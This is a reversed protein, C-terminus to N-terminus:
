ELVNLYVCLALSRGNLAAATSELNVLSGLKLSNFFQSFHVM